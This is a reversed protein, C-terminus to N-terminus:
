GDATPAVTAAPAALDVRAPIAAVAAGNAEPQLPAPHRVLVLEHAASTCVRLGQVSTRTLSQEATHLRAMVTGVRTGGVHWNLGADIECRELRTDSSETSPLTCMRHGDEIDGTGVSREGRRIINRLLFHKRAACLKEVRLSGRESEPGRRVRRDRIGGEGPGTGLRLGARATPLWQERSRTM